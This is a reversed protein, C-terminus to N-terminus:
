LRVPCSDIRASVHALVEAIKTGADGTGYLPSSPYRGHSLQERIAMHIRERECPVDLVNRARERGYQRHGVNVV